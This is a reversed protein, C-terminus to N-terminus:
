GVTWQFASFFWIVMDPNRGLYGTQFGLSWLLKAFPQSGLFGTETLRVHGVAHATQRRHAGEGKIRAGPARTWFIHVSGQPCRSAGLNSHENAEGSSDFEPRSHGNATLSDGDFRTDPTSHSAEAKPRRLFLMSRSCCRPTPCISM